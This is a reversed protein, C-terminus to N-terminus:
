KIVAFKGIEVRGTARDEVTFLYLGTAIAQDHASVLDWAHEGGSFLFPVAETGGATVQRRREAILANDDGTWQAADHEIRDVLDGALTFVSITCRAPLHTFWIAREYPGTGDWAARVRYPNPYVGPKRRVGDAESGAPVSGPYVFVWNERVDSELSALNNEPQGRDYTTVALWLGEPDGSPLDTLRFAYQYWVGDVEVSDADAGLARRVGVDELGTNPWVDNVADVQLLLTREAGTGPTRPSSYVRYGEFDPYGLIPDVFAEPDDRWYLMAEGEGLVVRLAPGPPPMPLLYRDLVGDFDLDEEAQLVGDGNKDEGRWAIRAWDTSAILNQAALQLEDAGNDAAGTPVFNKKACAVAFVATLSEGPELRGFNGASALMMWSRADPPGYPFVADGVPPTTGMRDYRERESGPTVLTPFDQSTSGNWLWTDAEPELRRPDPVQPSLGGLFRVGVFSDAYGNDGDADYGVAMNITDGVAMSTSDTVVIGALNDNWNWGGRGPAYYDHLNFNGVAEDIWYGVFLSDIPWGTGAPDLGDSVNTLRADLIVFGNAYSYNWAYSSLDVRLGLPVHNPISEGSEPVVRSTDTYSMLFDQHSVADTHYFSSSILSSRQQIEWPRLQAPDTRRLSDAEEPTWPSWGANNWEWGEGGFTGDMVATSVRAEGDVLGGVWLGGYSFHEVQEFDLESYQKYLCSPQGERNYGHGIVGFNTITLGIEGVSTYLDYTDEARAATLALVGVLAARLLIM